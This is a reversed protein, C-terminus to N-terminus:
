SQDTHGEGTSKHTGPPELEPIRRQMLAAIIHRNERDREDAKDLQRRLYDVEDQLTAILREKTVEVQHSAPTSPKDPRLDSTDLYIRVRGREDHDHRIKGREVRKYVADTTIGLAAAAEAVSLPRNDSM